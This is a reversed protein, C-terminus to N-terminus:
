IIFNILKNDIYITKKIKKNEFYKNMKQMKKIENTLESETFNKTSSIIDRKKGNIQIIIKNLDKELFEKKIEPWSIDYNKSIESLCESAFHPIIPIMIKLINKYNEILNKSDLKEDVIKNYFNYTEYLSSIITNYSFRELSQNVKNIIQNTFKNLKTDLKSNENNKNKKKIKKHLLWFKQIFKHCAIIGQDSWQIDKEPPSDSLIFLRVADAGYNNIIKEPDITNKKSKSMSETPGVKVKENPNEKIFFNKGDDSFVEEPSLWNNSKDKYTEHCVMGQTFLGDFPEVANIDNKKFNLARLFFRSYLLHLIAHEVGGIYQDVPMWYNVDDIDFGKDKNKPSCFRLFYWSSDVFTDLTDTELICDEGNIKIKKWEEQFNLPNGKTKLNVKQPLKIPLLDEPVKKIENKKNYAIPIPCGWYRQRSVGWDKLRFNVKKKGLKKEELIEITKPISETPVKLGDLFESNFIKGSGTYAESTISYSDNEEDPRVVTKFKLNYKIAFDLDRQDHAPCGFVAGFGYEMLVFNAFFVPVKNKPNLPNIALLDTKFGLKDAQAISEETTGIKSCENRFKIFKPDREYYKSIPHDISVALFSFGFLTDPRTTFCRITDLDTNGEIKFDVECGFSKGIWNKQMLKVKEPWNELAELGKLLDDSFKSINFFWQNLKKKEVPVGSRWGKGDIVQENALVTQDIPDWNVYSEKRYVLGKDYLDLFFKQQHKYYDESCTSIERNWDISLGLKKLQSKMILINEETWKKPELNNQKAANEAPMGFSDWGMPHLVNYGQMSKVRALVDGITYNRVHGMHIKGSPYPFMELCYFKKKNDKKIIARFSNNNDWYSQWKIETEKFNYREM